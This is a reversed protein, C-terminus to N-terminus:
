LAYAVTVQQQEQRPPERTEMAKVSGRVQWQFGLGVIVQHQAIHAINRRYLRGTMVARQLSFQQMTHTM